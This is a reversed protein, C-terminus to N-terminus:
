GHRAKGASRKLSNFAVRHDYSCFKADRRRGTGTGVEFWADCHQCRRLCADGSISRGFQLWLANLLSSPSLRMKPKTTEPDLVIAIDIQSLPNVQADIGQNLLQKDGSAFGLFERMAEAHVVIDYAPEGVNM